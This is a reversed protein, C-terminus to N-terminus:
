KPHLQNNVEQEDTNENASEQLRNPDDETILLESCEDALSQCLNNLESCDFYYNNIEINLEPQQQSVITIITLITTVLFGIFTAIDKWTIPNKSFHDKLFQTLIKTKTPRDCEYAISHILEVSTTNAQRNLESSDIVSTYVFVLNKLAGLFEDKNEINEVFLKSATLGLDKIEKQILPTLQKISELYYKNLVPTISTLANTIEANYSNILKLYIQSLSQDNKNM